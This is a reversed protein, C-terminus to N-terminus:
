DSIIYLIHYFVTFFLRINAVFHLSKKLVIHDLYRNKKTMSHIFAPLYFASMQGLLNAALLKTPGLMGPELMSTKVKYIIQTTKFWPKEKYGNNGIFIDRISTFKCTSAGPLDSLM